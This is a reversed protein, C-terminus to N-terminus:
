YYVKDYNSKKKKLKEIEEDIIKNKKIRQRETKKEDPNPIEFSGNPGNGTFIKRRKNHNKRAVDISRKRNNLRHMILRRPGFISHQDPLFYPIVPKQNPKWNKGFLEEVEDLFENNPDNADTM